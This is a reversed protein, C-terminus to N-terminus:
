EKLVSPCVQLSSPHQFLNPIFLNLFHRVFLGFTLIDFIRFNSPLFYTMTCFYVLNILLENCDQLLIFIILFTVGRMCKVVPTFTASPNHTHFCKFHWVLSWKVSLDILCRRCPNFRHQLSPQASASLGASATNIARETTLPVEARLM